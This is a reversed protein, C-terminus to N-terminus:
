GFGDQLGASRVIDGTALLAVPFRVPETNLAQWATSARPTGDSSRWAVLSDKDVEALAEPTPIWAVQPPLLTAADTTEVVIGSLDDNPRAFAVDGEGPLAIVEGYLPHTRPSWRGSM